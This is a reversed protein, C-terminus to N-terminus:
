QPTCLTALALTYNRPGQIYSYHRKLTATSEIYVKNEQNPSEEMHTDISM